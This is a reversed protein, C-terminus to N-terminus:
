ESEAKEETQSPNVEKLHEDVLETGPAGWLSVLNELLGLLNKLMDTENALVQSLIDLLNLVPVRKVDEVDLCIIDSILSPSHKILAELVEIRFISSMLNTLNLDDIKVGSENLVDMLVRFLMLMNDSSLPPVRLVTEGLTVQRDGYLIHFDSETLKAKERETM